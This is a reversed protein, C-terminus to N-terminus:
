DAKRQALARDMMLLANSSEGAIKLNELIETANKEEEVQENVFWKLFMQTPYENTDVALKFLLHIRSTVYQEHKLVQEFVKEPSEFGTDPKDITNYVIKEGVDNMFKVFKMAHELEEKAQMTMWNAFGSLNEEEFYAAMSLYLYGSYMEKNIQVNIEDLLKKNM